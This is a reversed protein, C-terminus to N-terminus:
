SQDDNRARRKLDQELRWGHVWSPLHEPCWQKGPEQKSFFWKEGDKIKGWRHNKIKTTCEDNSCEIWGVDYPEHSFANNM